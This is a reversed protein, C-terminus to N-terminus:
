IGNNKRYVQKTKTLTKSSLVRLSKVEKQTLHRWKGKALNDLLIGGIEVRKLTVVKHGIAECMNRVQRNRGEHITILLKANKEGKVPPQEILKVQAPATKKGELLIGQRLKRLNEPTPVGKVVALYTKKTEHKPHTLKQAWEGDNTMLLLGSTDQDLRGVPFLRVNSPVLDMVTPRGFPDTVTTVVGEPKHLMIYVKQGTIEVPKGDVELLDRQPNAKAGLETIVAGNVSVRGDTIMEEAKRRSAVGAMSLWKQLRIEM